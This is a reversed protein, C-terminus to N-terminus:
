VTELCSRMDLYLKRTIAGEVQNAFTIWEAVSAHIGSQEPM